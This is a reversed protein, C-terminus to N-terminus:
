HREMKRYGSLARVVVAVVNEGAIVKPALSNLSRQVACCKTRKDGEGLVLFYIRNGWRPPAVM